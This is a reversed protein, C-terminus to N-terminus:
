TECRLMPASTSINLHSVQGSRGLVAAAIKLTAGSVALSGLEGADTWRRGSRGEASARRLRCRHVDVILRRHM